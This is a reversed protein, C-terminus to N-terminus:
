ILRLKLALPLIAGPFPNSGWNVLLVREGVKRLCCARYTKVM